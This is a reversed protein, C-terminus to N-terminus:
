AAHSRKPKAADDPIRSALDAIQEKLMAIERDRTDLASQLAIAAAGDSAALLYARAKNRWELGGMGFAQIGTDSLDSLQEVTRIKMASFEAVLSRTMAPWASLPTGVTQADESANDKFRRYEERFRDKDGAEVQRFVESKSDGAVFIRVFERDEYIPRGAENSKFEMHVPEVSFTAYVNKENSM